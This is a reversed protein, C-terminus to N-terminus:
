LDREGEGRKRKKKEKDKLKPMKPVIEFKFSLSAQLLDVVILVIDNEQINRKPTFWKQRQQLTPLYERVWRKWFLDALYQIQRWRRKCYSDAKSFIGPPYSESSKLTLLHNPTLANADRPDDLVRTLPRGNVISEIECMFTQLGEDDLIQERLVMTMVRWITRILREWAGGM